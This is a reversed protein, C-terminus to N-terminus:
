GLQSGARDAEGEALLTRCLPEVDVEAQAALHQRGVVGDAGERQGAVSAAVLAAEEDDVVDGCM